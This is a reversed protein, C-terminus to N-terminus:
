NVKEYVNRSSIASFNPPREVNFPYSEIGLYNTDEFYYFTFYLKSSADINVITNDVDFMYIRSSIGGESVSESKRFSTLFWKEIVLDNLLIQIHGNSEINMYYDSNLSNIDDINEFPFYTYKWQWKGVAQPFVEELDLEPAKECSLFLGFIFILTGVRM